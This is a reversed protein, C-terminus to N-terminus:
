SAVGLVWALVGRMATRRHAAQRWVASHPGELVDDSIEEGRHAPLCHLVIADPTAAEVVRTDVTYGAFAALRAAHEEEQGMSTWADAYLVSAEKAAEHPDDVACVRGSRGAADAFVELATLEESGFAYGAPSAVRVEMGELVGAEALSRAMNNADGVYTLVRGALPGFTERMTLVDAVAQCPHAADSLLNVVPVDFGGRGLAAAMRVLVRHDCVRACVARHYCALTRAVDEAPERSDIGVEAAQICVPHGGLEVVAMECSNRTRASPKEFVLAVGGGELPRPPPDALALALLRDWDAPALGELDLFDPV